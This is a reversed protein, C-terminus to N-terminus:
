HRRDDQMSGADGWQRRLRKRGKNKTEVERHVENGRREVM